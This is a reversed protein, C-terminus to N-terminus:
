EEDSVLIRTCLRVTRLLGTCFAHVADIEFCNLMHM